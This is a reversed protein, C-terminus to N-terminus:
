SCHRGKGFGLLPSLLSVGEAGGGDGFVLLRNFPVDMEEKRGQEGKGFGHAPKLDKYWPDQTQLITHAM